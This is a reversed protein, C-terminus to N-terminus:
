LLKGMTSERETTSNFSLYFSDFKITQEDLQAQAVVLKGEIGPIRQTAHRKSIDFLGDYCSEEIVCDHFVEYGPIAVARDERSALTEQAMM